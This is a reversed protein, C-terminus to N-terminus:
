DAGYETWACAWLADAVDYTDLPMSVASLPLGHLVYVEELVAQRHELAAIRQALTELAAQIGNTTISATM